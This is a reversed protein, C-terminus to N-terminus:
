RLVGFVDGRRATDRNAHILIGEVIAFAQEGGDVFGWGQAFIAVKRL